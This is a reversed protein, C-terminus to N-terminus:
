LGMFLSALIEEYKIDVPYVNKVVVATMNYTVRNQEQIRDMKVARPTLTRNGSVFKCGRLSIGKTTDSALNTDLLTTILNAEEKHVYVPWADADFM